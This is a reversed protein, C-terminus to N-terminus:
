KVYRAQLLVPIKRTGAIRNISRVLEDFLQPERYKVDEMVKRVGHLECALIFDDISDWYQLDDMQKPTM